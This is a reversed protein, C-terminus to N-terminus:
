GDTADNTRENDEVRGEQTLVRPKEEAPEIAEIIVICHQTGAILRKATEADVEGAFTAAGRFQWKDSRVAM